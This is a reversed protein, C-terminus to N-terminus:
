PARDERRFRGGHGLDARLEHGVTDHVENELETEVEVENQVEVEVAHEAEPEMGSPLDFTLTAAKAFKVDAPQIEIEHRGKDDFREVLQIEVPGQVADQPVDLRAMGSASQIRAGRSDVTVPASSANDMGGCAAASLALVASCITKRLMTNGKEHPTADHAGYV